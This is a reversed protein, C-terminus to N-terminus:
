PIDLNRSNPLHINRTPYQINKLRDGYGESNKIDILESMQLTNAM